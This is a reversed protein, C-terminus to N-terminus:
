PAGGTPQPESFCVWILWGYTLLCLVTAGVGTRLACGDYDAFVIMPVDALIAVSGGMLLATLILSIWLASRIRDTVTMLITIRAPLAVVHQAVNQVQEVREQQARLMGKWDSTYCYARLYTGGGTDQEMLLGLARCEDEIGKLRYMALAALLAMAAALAQAITSFTYYVATEWHLDM